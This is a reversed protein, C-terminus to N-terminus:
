NNLLRHLRGYACYIAFEAQDNEAINGPNDELYWLVGTGVTVLVLIFFLKLNSKM